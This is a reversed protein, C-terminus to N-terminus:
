QPADTKEAAVRESALVVNSSAGNPADVPEPAGAGQERLITM